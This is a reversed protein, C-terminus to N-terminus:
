LASDDDDAASDDDDDAASDDDDDDDDGVILDLGGLAEVEPWVLPLTTTLDACPEVHVPNTRTSLLIQSYPFTDPARSTRGFLTAVLDAGSSAMQEWGGMAVAVQLPTGEELAIEEQSTYHHYYRHTGAQLVVSARDPYADRGEELDEILQALVLPCSQIPDIDTAHWAGDGGEPLIDQGHRSREYVRSVMLSPGLLEGGPYEAGDAGPPAARFLGSSPGGDSVDLLAHVARYSGNGGFAENAAGEVGQCIYAYLDTPDPREEEPSALVEELYDQLAAVEGLYSAYMSCSVPEAAGVLAVSLLDRAPASDTIVRHGFGTVGFQGGSSFPTGGGVSDLPGWWSQLHGDAETCGSTAVFVLAVVALAVRGFTSRFQRM